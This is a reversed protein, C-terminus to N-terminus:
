NVAGWVIKLRGTAPKSEQELFAQYDDAVINPNGDHIVEGKEIFIAKNCYQRVSSMDHTVLIVTKTKDRKIQNFFIQANERFLKTELLWFRM